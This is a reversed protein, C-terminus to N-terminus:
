RPAIHIALWITDSSADTWEVRHKKHAPLLIADGPKMSIVQEEGEIRLGASGALLLVWEDEKQEYWFGPPSAHQRSVIREMRVPGSHHLIEILEQPLEGPISDFLNIM